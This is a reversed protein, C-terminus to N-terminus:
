LVQHWVSYFPIHTVIIVPTRPGTKELDAKLWTLQDDDLWGIYDGTSADQGISDLQIFHWGDHDFSHYTRGQGYREAFIKKGYDQDGPRFQAKSSWGCVDHNGITHHAPVELTKMCEDWLQWQLKLRDAGVQLGDMILDGGTIAFAPRQQLANIKAFCQKVGAVAGKEPQVHPDTLFVFSFDKTPGATAATTSASLTPALIGSASATLFRRRSLLM